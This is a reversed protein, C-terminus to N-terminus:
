DRVRHLQKEYERVEGFTIAGCQCRHNDPPGAFPGGSTNGWIFLHAGIRCESERPPTMQPDKMSGPM